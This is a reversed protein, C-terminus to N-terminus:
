RHGPAGTFTMGALLGRLLASYEGFFRDQEGATLLSRQDIVRALEADQTAIEDAFRRDNDQM